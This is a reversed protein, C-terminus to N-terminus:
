EHEKLLRLHKEFHAQLGAYYAAEHKVLAAKLEVGYQALASGYTVHLVERAHFDNLL